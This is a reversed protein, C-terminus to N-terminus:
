LNFVFDSLCLLSHSLVLWLYPSQVETPILEARHRGRSPATSFQHGHSLNCRGLDFVVSVCYLVLDVCQYQICCLTLVLWQVCCPATLCSLFITFSSLCSLFHLTADTFINGFMYSLHLALTAGFLLKFHWVFVQPKLLHSMQEKHSSYYQIVLGTEWNFTIAACLSSLSYLSPDAGYRLCLDQEPRTNVHMWLSGILPSWSLTCTQGCGLHVVSTNSIHDSTHCKSTTQAVQSWIAKTTHTCTQRVWESFCVCFM